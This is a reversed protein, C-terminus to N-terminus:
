CTYSMYPAIKDTIKMISQSWGLLWSIIPPKIIENIQVFNNNELFIKWIIRNIVKIAVLVLYEPHKFLKLLLNIITNTIM